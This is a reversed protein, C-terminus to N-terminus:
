WGKSKFLDQLAFSIEKSINKQCWLNVYRLLDNLTVDATIDKKGNEAEMNYASVFGNIWGMAQYFQPPGSVLDKGKLDSSAYANIYYECSMPSILHFKGSADAGRAQECFISSFLFVVLIQKM